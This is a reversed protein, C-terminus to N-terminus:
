HLYVLLWLRTFRQSLLSFFFFLGLTTYGSHCGSQDLQFSACKYHTASVIFIRSVVEYCGRRAYVRTTQTVKRKLYHVGVSCTLERVFMAMVAKKSVFDRNKAQSYAKLQAQIDNRDDM